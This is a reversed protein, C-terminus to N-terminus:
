KVASSSETTFSQRTSTPPVVEPPYQTFADTLFDTQTGPEAQGASGPTRRAAAADGTPEEGPPPPASLLPPRDDEPAAATQAVAVTALPAASLTLVACVAAAFRYKAM